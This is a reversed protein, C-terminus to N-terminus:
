FNLLPNNHTPVEKKKGGIFEELWDAVEEFAMKSSIRLIFDCSEKPTNFRFGFYKDLLRPGISGTLPLSERPQPEYGKYPTYSIGKIYFVSEEVPFEVEVFKGKSKGVETRLLLGLANYYFQNTLPNRYRLTHLDTLRWSERLRLKEDRLKSIWQNLLNEPIKTM